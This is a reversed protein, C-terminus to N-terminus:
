ATMGAVIELLQDVHPKQSVKAAGAEEACQALNDDHSATFLVVPIDKTEPIAKLRRCTEFGDLGPMIVDLLIVDPRWEKAKVIGEMGSAATEVRFTQSELRTKMLKLVIPEDDVFLIKKSEM